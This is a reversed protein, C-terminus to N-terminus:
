AQLSAWNWGRARSHQTQKVLPLLARGQAMHISVPREDSDDVLLDKRLVSCQSAHLSVTFNAGAVLARARDLYLLLEESLFM